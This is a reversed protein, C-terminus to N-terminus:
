KKRTNRTNRTKKSKISKKKMKGGKKVTKNGKKVTKNGEISFEQIIGEVDYNVPYKGKRAVLSVNKVTEINDEEKRMNPELYELYEEIQQLIEDDYWEDHHIQNKRSEEIIKLQNKIEKFTSLKTDSSVRMNKKIFKIMHEKSYSPTYSM